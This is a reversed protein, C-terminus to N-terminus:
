VAMVEELFITLDDLSKEGAVRPIVPMMFEINQIFSFGIIWM